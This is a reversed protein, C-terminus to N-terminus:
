ASTSNMQTRRSCRKSSPASSPKRSMTIRQAFPTTRPLKDSVTRILKSLPYLKGQAERPTGMERARRAPWARPPQAEPRRQAYVVHRRNQQSKEKTHHKRRRRIIACTAEYPISACISIFSYRPTSPWDSKKDAWIIEDLRARGSMGGREAM